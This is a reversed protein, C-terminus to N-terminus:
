RRESVPPAVMRNRLTGIGTVESELLDGPHLFQPPTMAIGVGGCTGTSIVDGPELTIVESIDAIATVVDVIMHDTRAHQKVEGNVRCEIELAQPDPLEDSTVIWPGLPSSRDLSKGKFYQQHRLQIDRVSFDNFAAYGFVHRLAGERAIARGPSGIVVALEVEWDHQPSLTEDVVVDDFPGCVSTTAKTFWMPLDPAKEEVQLLRAGEEIHDYYNAGLCMVNHRLRPIPARLEVDGLAILTSPRELRARAKEMAAAGGDILDLMSPFDDTLDVVNDGVVAGVREGGDRRYTVLRM